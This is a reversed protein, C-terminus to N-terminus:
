RRMRFLGKRLHRHTLRPMLRVRGELEVVTEGKHGPTGVIHMAWPTAHRAELAIIAVGSFPVVPVLVEAVAALVTWVSKGHQNSGMCSSLGTGYSTTLAM